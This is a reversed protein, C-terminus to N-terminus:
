FSVNLRIWPNSSQPHDWQVELPTEGQVYDLICEVDINLSTHSSLSLHVGRDGESKLPSPNSPNILAAAIGAPQYLGYHAGGCAAMCLAMVLPLFFFVNKKMKVAKKTEGSKMIELM